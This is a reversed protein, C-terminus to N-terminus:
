QGIPWGDEGIAVRPERYTRGTEAASKEDHCPTCLFQLNRPHDTKAQSWGLVKAKAKSVIHDVDRGPVVKSNKACQECLGKAREIVVKRIKEWEAGYGRSQRSEKSWAMIEVKRRFNAFVTKRVLGVVGGM